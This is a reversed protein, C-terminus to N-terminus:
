IRVLESIPLEVALVKTMTDLDRREEVMSVVQQEAELQDRDELLSTFLLLQFPRLLLQQKPEMVESGAAKLV